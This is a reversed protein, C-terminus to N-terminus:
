PEERHEAAWNLVITVPPPGSGVGLLDREDGRAHPPGPLAPSAPGGAVAVKEVEPAVWFALFRSDDSWMLDEAGETGPLSRAELSDLPRLWVSTKGDATALFALMSGDPSLNAYQLSTARGPAPVLFRTSHPATGPKLLSALFLTAALTVLPLVGALLWALRERNKRRAAVPAPVGAASGAEVIWKLEQMVDHATQLRDDPDKALCVKVLRELAPPTMPQVSALPPPEASLIAAILSAQSKGTFARRGTAMEYLLSGLAFIDSRADAEKAELQEPSMYQFTGLVTGHETLPRASTALASLMSAAPATKLGQLKMVLFDTGDQRGVDYLSCIHPHNLSSVARAEREFRQRLDPDAALHQPLVTLAVTRDLRTDKARYVEGM